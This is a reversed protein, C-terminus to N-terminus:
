PRWRPSTTGPGAGHAEAVTGPSANGCTLGALGLGAGPQLVECRVDEVGPRGSRTSTVEVRQVLYSHLSFRCGFSVEIKAVGLDCEVSM